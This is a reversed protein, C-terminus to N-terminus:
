KAWTITGYMMYKAGTASTQMAFRLQDNDKLVMNRRMAARSIRVRFHGTENNSSSFFWGAALTAKRLAQTTLTVDAGHLSDPDISGLAGDPSKYLIWKVKAGSSDSTGSFYAIHLKIRRLRSLTQAEAVTSAGTAIDYDPDDDVALIAEDLLTNATLTEEKLVRSVHPTLIASRVMGRFRKMSMRKAM